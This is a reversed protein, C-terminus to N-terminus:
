SCVVDVLLGIAFGLAIGLFIVGVYLAAKDALPIGAYFVACYMLPILGAAILSNPLMWEFWIERDSKMEM